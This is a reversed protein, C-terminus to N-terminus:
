DKAREVVHVNVHDYTMTIGDADFNVKLLENLSYYVKWYDGSKCWARVDYSVSSSGYEKVGVFPAPDTLIKEIQSFTGTVSNRVAEATNEYSANISLDIRRIDQNTYNIVNSVTVEHNPIFITKNDMTVLTTHMLGISKVTGSNGALEIFDESVFPKTLLIVFGSILNSLLDQVSLSLALGAISLVALLSSVPIGIIDCSIILAVFYLVIRLVVVLYGVASNDLKSRAGARSVIAVIVKIIVLCVLFVVIAFLLNGVTLEGRGFNLINKITDLM